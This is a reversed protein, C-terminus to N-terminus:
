ITKLIFAEFDKEISIGQEKLADEVIKFKRESWAVNHLFEWLKNRKEDSSHYLIVQTNGQAFTQLDALFYSIPIEQRKLEFDKSIEKSKRMDKTNILAHFEKRYTHMLDEKEGGTADKEYEDGDSMVFSHEIASLRKYLETTNSQVLYQGIIAGHTLLSSILVELPGGKVQNRDDYGTHEKTLMVALHLSLATTDCAGEFSKIIAEEDLEEIGQHDQYDKMFEAYGKPAASIDWTEKLYKLIAEVEKDFFFDNPSNLDRLNYSM